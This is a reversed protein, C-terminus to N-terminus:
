LSALNSHLFVLVAPENVAVNVAMPVCQVRKVLATTARTPLERMVHYVRDFSTL